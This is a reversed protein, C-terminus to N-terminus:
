SNDYKDTIIAVLEGKSPLFHHEEELEEKPEAALLEEFVDDNLKWHMKLVYMVALKPTDCIEHYNRDM